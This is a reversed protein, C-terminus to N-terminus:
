PRFRTPKMLPYFAPAAPRLLTSLPTAKKPPRQSGGSPAHAACLPRTAAPCGAPCLGAASPRVLVWFPWRAREMSM